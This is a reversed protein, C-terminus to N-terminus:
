IHIHSLYFEEPTALVYLEAAILSIAIVVAVARFTPRAIIRQEMVWATGAAITLTILPLGHAFHRFAETPQNWGPPIPEAALPALTATAAAIPLAALAIRGRFARTIGVVFLLALSSLLIWSRLDDILLVRVYYNWM